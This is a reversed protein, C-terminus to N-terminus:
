EVVVRRMTPAYGDAQVSLLYLGPALGATPLETTSDAFARTRVLQGLANRLTARAASAPVTLSVHLTGKAGVPNPWVSFATANAATTATATGALVTVVAPATTTHNGADTVTLVVPVGNTLAPADSDWGAGGTLTGANAAVGNADATATGSGEGFPYCAVLGAPTRLLHLGRDSSLQAATRAVNWVRVEDISGNFFEGSNTSGIRLNQANPVNHGGDPQDTGIAKGDLYLTRTTGDFTAAVHHWAGALSPTAVEIDNGWWYNVLGKASLRLANCMNRNGFAGWGIISNGGMTTPKIWAEITYNSNGTPVTASSGIAVYQGNGNLRLARAVVAPGIDATTFANPVVSLTPAAAVGCNATSGNNVATPALTATGTPGLVLRTNQAQAAPLACVTFVQASAGGSGNALAVTLVGTLAGTPVKATLETGAANVTFDASSVTNASRGPFTVLAAGTFGTGTLRITAETPASAPVIGTIALGPAAPLVTFTGASTSAGNSAVAAVLGTTATTPVVFTITTASVLTFPVSSGNLTVTKAQDLTTGTLVVLAGAPGRTPNMATLVPPSVVTFSGGSVGTGAPTTVSLPGSRAGIPVAVTLQTDSGGPAPKAVVGGFGVQTAGTFNRGTLVVTTTGVPGTTPTFSTIVPLMPVIFEGTSTATGFPTTLALLGTTAGDPVAFTLQTDSNVSFNTAPVAVNNLTLQTTGLFNTGTLRVEASVLGRTPTFGTITPPSGVLFPTASSGTGAPTRVTLLGSTSGPDVTVTLSTATPTGTIAAPTGNLRVETAGALNTGTLTVKTGVPGLAPSFSIITPGPGPTIAFNAGSIAFFYNDAAEVMVRATTTAVNPVTVSATGSNAVGTALTLPYTLGGDLSLRLNVKACNVPAATTNAVNWSVTQTSGGAWSTGAANPATVVFPGAAASVDLKVLASYDVGGMGGAPGNHLDRATCRFTLTRAVTPLREGTAPTATNTALGALRPFYRTTSTTPPFVRFLPPTKGTVQPLSLNGAPGTDLEEWSYTLPDNEADTATATLKFPTNLPLTKGSAPATVVPATNGTATLTGCSCKSMVAQMQEYSGTHFTIETKSQVNNDPGYSGCYSMLTVGAGPEWATPANGNNSDIANFTHNAGLMHGVEHAAYYVLQYETPVPHGAMGDAKYGSQSLNSVWTGGGGNFTLVLGLDYNADGILKDVNKQNQGAASTGDSYSFPPKPGIGNLFILQDNNAVLLLRVALEREFIGNMRNMFMAEVAQVGATTNGCAASFEPTASLTFRYTRLQAGSLRAPAPGGGAGRWAAVRAASAQQQAPTSVTQCRAAPSASARADQQSYSLYHRTDTPRAPDILFGPGTDSLVQAHFGQPTLDLRVTATADDLGVGAYTKIQHYRAALAPDMVPAERLAFRASTGDPRPLALELPAAGARGEPPATALAARLGPEDHSLAQTRARILTAALPSAAAASRAAADPQFFNQTPRQQGQAGLSLGLALLLAARLRRLGPYSAALPPLQHIAPRGHYPQRM